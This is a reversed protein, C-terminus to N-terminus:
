RRRVGLCSFDDYWSHFNQAMQPSPRDPLTAMTASGEQMAECASTDFIKMRAIFTKHWKLIQVHRGKREFWNADCISDCVRRAANARGLM